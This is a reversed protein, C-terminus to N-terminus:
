HPPLPSLPPSAIAAPRSPLRYFWACRRRCWHIRTGACAVALPRASRHLPLPLLPLSLSGAFWHPAPLAPPAVHHRSCTCPLLVPPPLLAVAAAASAFDVSLMLMPVFVLMLLCIRAACRRCFPLHFSSFGSGYLLLHRLPTVHMCKSILRELAQAMM